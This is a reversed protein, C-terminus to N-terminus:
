DVPPIEWLPQGPGESTLYLTKGDTGYCIAEGNARSPMPLRWLRAQFATQWSAGDRRAFEYAGDDTLLIARRGDPSIDMAAASPTDLRALFKAQLPGAPPESPLDLEYILCGHKREKTALCIKGLTPDVAVAECDHPSDPYRFTITMEIKASQPSLSDGALRPEELLHLQYQRRVLNNDGTDAYLLYHKGGRSFSAIDECDVFQAGKLKVVGVTKGERSLCYLRPTDGDNHTWFSEARVNSRAIGSSEGIRKDALRGLERPRGYKVHAPELGPPRGGPTSALPAQSDASTQASATSLEHGWGVLFGLFLAVAVIKAWHPRRGARKEKLRQRLTM